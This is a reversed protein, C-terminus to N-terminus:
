YIFALKYDEYILRMGNNTFISIVLHTYDLVWFYERFLKMRRSGVEINEM